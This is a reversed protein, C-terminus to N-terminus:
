RLKGSGYDWHPTHTRRKPAIEPPTHPPVAVKEVKQYCKFLFGRQLLSMQMFCLNDQEAKSRRVQMKRVLLDHPRLTISQDIRCLRLYFNLSHM